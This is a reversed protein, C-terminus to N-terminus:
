LPTIISTHTQTKDHPKNPLTEGVLINEIARQHFKFPVSNANLFNTSEVASTESTKRTELTCHKEIEQINSFFFFFFFSFKVTITTLHQWSVSDNNNLYKKCNSMFTDVDFKLASNYCTKKRWSFQMYHSDYIRKLFFPMGTVKTM